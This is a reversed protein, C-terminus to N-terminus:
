NDIHKRYIINYVWHKIVVLYFGSMHVRTLYSNSM